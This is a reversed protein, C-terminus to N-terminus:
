AVTVSIAPSTAANAASDPFSRYTSQKRTTGLAFSRTRDPHLTKMTFTAVTPTEAPSNMIITATLGTTLAAGASAEQVSNAAINSQIISLAASPPGNIYGNPLYRALATDRAAMPTSIEPILGNNFSLSGSFVESFTSNYTVGLSSWARGWQRDVSGGIATVPSTKAGYPFIQMSVRIPSQSEADWTFTISNLMWHTYEIANAGGIRWQIVGGEQTLMGTTTSRNTSYSGLGLMGQLATQTMLADTAYTEINLVPMVVNEVIGTPELLGQAAFFTGPALAEDYSGSLVPLYVGTSPYFDCTAAAAPNLIVYGLSGQEFLTVAM